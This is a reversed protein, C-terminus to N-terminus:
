SDAAAREKVFRAAFERYSTPKRGTVAEYVVSSGGKYGYDNYFQAMIRVNDITWQPAGASRLGDLWQAPDLQGAKIPLDTADALMAAMETVSLTDGSSLEYTGGRFRRDAVVAAIAVALDETDFMAFKQTNSWPWALTKSALITPWVLGINQMFMSPQLVTFSLNSKYLADEVLLKNHHSPIDSPHCHYCSVFVFHDTGAREAAAVLRYGIEHEDPVVAPPIHVICDVGDVAQAVDSDSRLDGVVVEHVGAATLKEASAQSSSLVRVKHGAALLHKVAPQGVMGSAGTVLIM